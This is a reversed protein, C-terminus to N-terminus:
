KELGLCVRLHQRYYQALNWHFIVRTKGINWLDMRAESVEGPNQANLSLVSGFGLYKWVQACTSVGLNEPLKLTSRGPM